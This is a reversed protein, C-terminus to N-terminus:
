GGIVFAAARPREQPPQVLSRVGTPRISGIFVVKRSQEIAVRRFYVLLGIYAMGVVLAFIAIDWFFGAGPIFGLLLSGLLVGFISGLVQRRRRATHGNVRAVREPRTNPAVVPASLAVADIAAPYESTSSSSSSPGPWFGMARRSGGSTVRVAQVSASNVTRMDPGTFQIAHLSHHFRDVSYSSRRENLKRLVTPTLAV